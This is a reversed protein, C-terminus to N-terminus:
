VEDEMSRAIGTIRSWCPQCYHLKRVVTNNEQHVYGPEEDVRVTVYDVVTHFLLSKEAVIKHCLDCCKYAPRKM